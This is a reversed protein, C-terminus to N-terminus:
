MRQLKPNAANGSLSFALPANGLMASLIGAQKGAEIRVQGSVPWAQQVDLPIGVTGEGQLVVAEGGGLTWRWTGSTEDAMIGLQYDGLATEEGGMVIAASNWGIGLKGALPRDSQMDLRVHGSVQVRGSLTVPLPLYKQWLLQLVSMDLAADVDYIDMYDDQWNLLGEGTQGQWHLELQIGPAGNLLSAWAPRMSLSELMLPAALGPIHASVQDLRVTFGEVQMKEYDLVVGSQRTQLDIRARLWPEPQWRMAVFLLLAVVFVMGLQWWSIGQQNKVIKM